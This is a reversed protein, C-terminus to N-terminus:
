IKFKSPDKEFNSKCHPCCFYVTKGNVKSKVTATKEDIQMGCVPDTAM